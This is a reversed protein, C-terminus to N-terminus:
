TADRADNHLRKIKYLIHVRPDGCTNLPPAWQFFLFICFFIGHSRTLHIPTETIIRFLLLLVHFFFCRVFGNQRVFTGGRRGGGTQKGLFCSRYRRVNQPARVRPVIIISVNVRCRGNPRRGADATQTKIRGLRSRRRRRSGLSLTGTSKTRGRHLGGGCCRPTAAMARGGVPHRNRWEAGATVFSIPVHQLRRTKM